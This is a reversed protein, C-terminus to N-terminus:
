RIRKMKGVFYGIKYPVGKILLLFISAFSEKWMGNKFLGKRFREKKNILDTYKNDRAGVSTYGWRYFKHWMIGISNPEIHKVANSLIAVKQSINWAEYYIIAHDQGGVSELVNAPINAFAKKLIETRYFRPLMVSTSPNFDKTKHILKRDYHFLKEIFNECRYVDEELILMDKTNNMEAVAREICSPEMIQDSDLLLIYEGNAIKLGEYRAGLLAGPYNVIKTNFKKAIEITNDRSNGDIINIEINNYTQDHAAKLCMGLFSASNFTPISITVLPNNM